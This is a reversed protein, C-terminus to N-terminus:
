VLDGVARRPATRDSPLANAPLVCGRTVLGTCYGTDGRQGIM